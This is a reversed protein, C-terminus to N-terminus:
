EAKRNIQKESFAVHNKDMSVTLFRMIREDRKLETEFRGIVDGGAEFEILQYFGTSKKQIPYALKRMGWNEKHKIACGADKLYGEVKTVAEEVQVDSLVPTLIFVTEYRNMSILTQKSDGINPTCFYFFIANM